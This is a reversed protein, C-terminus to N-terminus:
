SWCKLNATQMFINHTNLIKRDRCKKLAVEADTVSSNIFIGVVSGKVASFVILNRRENRACKKLTFFRLSLRRVKLM